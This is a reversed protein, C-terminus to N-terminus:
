LDEFGLARERLSVFTAHGVIVHDLVDIEMTIGAQVLRRTLAVDEPSPNADGSPHNHGVIISKVNRRVAGRFVEAIRVISTNLTGRYLIEREVIRNRTDLYLVVFCEQEERGIYGMLLNAADGPSRIHYKEGMQSELVRRGLELAAKIRAAQAKGVGHVATLQAVEATAIQALGGFEKMLTIATDMANGTGLISALLETGSVAMAGAECVRNVPREEKPYERVLM